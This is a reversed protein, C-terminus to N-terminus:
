RLIIQTGRLLFQTREHTTVLTHSFQFKTLRIINPSWRRHSYAVSGTLPLGANWVVPPVIINQKKKKKKWPISTLSSGLFFSTWLLLHKLFLNNNNYNNFFVWMSHFGTLGPPKSYQASKLVSLVCIHSDRISFRESPEIWGRVVRTRCHVYLM